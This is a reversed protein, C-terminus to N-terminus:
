KIQELFDLLERYVTQKNLHVRAFAAASQSLRRHEEPDALLRSVAAAFEANDDVVVTSQKVDLPLGEIGKATTVLPKGYALAEVTKIKLGTGIWAPNIVISAAAYEAEVSEQHGLFIVHEFREALFARYVYGCVHLKAHPNQARIAPWASSLFRRLGDINAGNYGGVYLIQGNQPCSVASSQGSGSAGATVTKIKPCMERILAAEAAQIAIVADFKTFIRSEEDRSIQLPFTMGRSAFEEVRKYQLDHTDLLRTVGHNMKDVARHLWIYEVIVAKWRCSKSLHAVYNDLGAPYRQWYDIILPTVAHGLLRKTLEELPPLGVLAGVRDALRVARRAGNRVRSWWGTGAYVDLRDVHARCIKRSKHDLFGCLLLHVYWGQQRLVEILEAIRQNDGSRTPYPNTDCIIAIERSSQTDPLRKSASM